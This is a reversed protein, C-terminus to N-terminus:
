NIKIIHWLAHETRFWLFLTLLYLIECTHFAASEFMFCKPCSIALFHREEDAKIFCSVFFTLPNFFKGSASESCQFVIDSRFSFLSYTHSIALSSLVAFYFVAQWDASSFVYHSFVNREVGELFIPSSQSWHMVQEVHSLMLPFLSFSVFTMEVNRWNRRKLLWM